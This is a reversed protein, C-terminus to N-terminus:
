VTGNSRTNALASSASEVSALRAKEPKATGLALVLGAVSVAAALERIRDARHDVDQARQDLQVADPAVLDAAIRSSVWASIANRSTDPQGGRALVAQAHLDDAASNMGFSVAVSAGIALAILAFLLTGTRELTVRM